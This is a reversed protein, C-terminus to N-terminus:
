LAELFALLRDSIQMYLPSPQARRRDIRREGIESPQPDDLLDTPAPPAAHEAIAAVKGYEALAGIRKWGFGSKPGSGIL